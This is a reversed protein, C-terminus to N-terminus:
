SIADEQKETLKIKEWGLLDWSDLYIERIEDVVFDDLDETALDEPIEIEVVKSASIIIRMLDCGRTTKEV